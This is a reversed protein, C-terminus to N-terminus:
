IGNFFVRLIQIEQEFEWAKIVKIRIRTDSVWILLDNAPWSTEIPVSCLPFGANGILNAWPQLMRSREELEGLIAFCSGIQNTTEVGRFFILEDTPIIFNGIYPSIFAMNWVVLWCNKDSWLPKTVTQGYPHDDIIFSVNVNESFPWVLGNFWVNLLWDMPEIEIRM